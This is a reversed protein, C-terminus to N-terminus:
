RWYDALFTEFNKPSCANFQATVPHVFNGATQQSRQFRETWIFHYTYKQCLITSQCPKFNSIEKCVFFLLKEQLLNNIESRWKFKFRQIEIWNQVPAHFHIELVLRNNRIQPKTLLNGQVNCRLIIGRQIKRLSILNASLLFNISGQRKQKGM